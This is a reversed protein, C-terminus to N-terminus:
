KRRTVTGIQGQPVFWEQGTLDTVMVHDAAVATIRCAISEGIVPMSMVVRGEGHQLERLRAEFSDPGFEPQSRGGGESRKTVRLTVPGELNVHCEDGASTELTALTGRAYAVVGVFRENGVNLQVTDGRGLLEFAVDALTRRALRIHRAAGEDDEAASQFDPGVRDRLERRLDDLPHDSRDM